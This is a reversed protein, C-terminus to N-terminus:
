PLKVLVVSWLCSYRRFSVRNYVFLVTLIEFNVKVKL